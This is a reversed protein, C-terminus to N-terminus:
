DTEREKRSFDACCDAPQRFKMRPYVCHGANLWEGDESYHLYFHKCNLCARTEEEIGLWSGTKATMAM